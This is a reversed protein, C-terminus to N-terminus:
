FKLMRCRKLLIIYNATYKIHLILDIHNEMGCADQTMKGSELLSHHQILPQKIEHIIQSM